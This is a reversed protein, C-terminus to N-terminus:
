WFFLLFKGLLHYKKNEIFCIHFIFCWSIKKVRAPKVTETVRTTTKKDDLSLYYGRSTNYEKTTKQTNENRNTFPRKYPLEKREEEKQKVKRLPYKLINACYDAFEDISTIKNGRELPPILRPKYNENLKRFKDCM